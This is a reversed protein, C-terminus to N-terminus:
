DEPQETQEVDLGNAMVRLIEEKRMDELILLCTHIEGRVIYYETVTEKKDRQTAPHFLNNLAENLRHEIISILGINKISM